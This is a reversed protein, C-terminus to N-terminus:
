LITLVLDLARPALKGLGLFLGPEINFSFAMRPVIAAYEVGGVSVINL